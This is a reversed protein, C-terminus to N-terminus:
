KSQASELIYAFLDRCGQLRKMFVKKASEDLQEIRPKLKDCREVLTAAEAKTLAMADNTRSCIDDFESRWNDQAHVANFAPYCILGAGLMTFCLMASLTLTRIVHM